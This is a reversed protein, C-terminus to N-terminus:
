IWELNPEDRLGAVEKTKVSADWTNYTNSFRHVSWFKSENGALYRTWHELVEAEGHDAVLPKLVSALKGFPPTGCTWLQSFPTLWTEKSHKGNDSSINEERDRDRPLRKARVKSTPQKCSELTLFGADVLAKLDVAGAVGIRRQVWEPDDPIRGESESALLWILILHLKSADQLCSFAYDALLNRYLKIWLPARNKYHQFQKWNKVELYGSESTM